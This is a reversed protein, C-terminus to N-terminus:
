PSSHRWYTQDVIKPHDSSTLWPYIPLRTKPILHCLGVVVLELEVKIYSLEPQMSIGNSILCMKNFLPCCMEQM